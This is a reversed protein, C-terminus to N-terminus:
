FLREHLSFDQVMQYWIHLHCCVPHYWGPCVGDIGSPEALSNQPSLTKQPAPSSPRVIARHFCPSWIWCAGVMWIPFFVVHFSSKIWSWVEVSGCHCMSKGIPYWLLFNLWPHKQHHKCGCNMEVWHQQICSLYGPSAGRTAVTRCPKSFQQM